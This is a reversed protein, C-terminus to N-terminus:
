YAAGPGAPASTAPAGAFQTRLKRAANAFVLVDVGVAV